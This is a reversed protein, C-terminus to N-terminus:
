IRYIQNIFASIGFAVAMELNPVVCMGPRLKLSWGTSKTYRGSSPFCMGNNALYEGKGNDNINPPPYWVHSGISTCTQM